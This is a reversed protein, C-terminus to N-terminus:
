TLPVFGNGCEGLGDPDIGVVGTGILVSGDSVTLFSVMGFRAGIQFFGFL